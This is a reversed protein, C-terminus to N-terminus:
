PPQIEVAILAVMVVWGEVGETGVREIWCGVHVIGVPVIVMVEGLPEPMVYLM